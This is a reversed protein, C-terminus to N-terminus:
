DNDTQTKKSKVLDELAMVAVLGVEPLDVEVQREWLEEFEGMGRRRGM